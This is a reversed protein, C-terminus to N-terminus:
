EKINSSSTASQFPHLLLLNSLPTAMMTLHLGVDAVMYYVMGCRSSNYFVMIGLSGGYSM